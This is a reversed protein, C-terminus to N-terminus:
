PEHNIHTMYKSWVAFQSKPRKYNDGVFLVAFEQQVKAVLTYLKQCKFIHRYIYVKIQAVFHEWVHKKVLVMIVTGWKKKNGLGYSLNELSSMIELYIGWFQEDFRQDAQWSIKATLFTM